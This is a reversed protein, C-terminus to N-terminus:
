PKKKRNLRSVAFLALASIALATGIGILVKEATTLGNKPPTPTPPSPTFVPPDPEPDPLTYVATFFQGNKLVLGPSVVRVDPILVWTTGRDASIYTSPADTAVWVLSNDAYVGVCTGQLQKVLTREQNSDVSYLQSGTSVIAITDIVAAYKQHPGWDADFSATGSRYAISDTGVACVVSGSFSSALQMSPAISLATWEGSGFRLWGLVSDNRFYTECDGSIVFDIVTQGQSMLTRPNNQGLARTYLNVLTMVLRLVVDNGSRYPGNVINWGHQFTEPNYIWWISSTGNRSKASIQTNAVDWYGAGIWYETQTDENMAGIGTSSLTLTGGNSM